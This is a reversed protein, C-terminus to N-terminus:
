AAFSNQEGKNLALAPMYMVMGMYLVTQLIFCCTGATRVTRNFRRELYQLPFLQTAIFLTM